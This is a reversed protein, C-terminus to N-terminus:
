VESTKGQQRSIALDQAPNRMQDSLKSAKHTKLTMKNWSLVSCSLQALMINQASILPAVLSKLLKSRFRYDWDLKIRIRPWSETKIM